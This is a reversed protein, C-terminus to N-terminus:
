NAPSLKVSVGVVGIGRLARSVKARTASDAKFQVTAAGHAIVTAGDVETIGHVLDRVTKNTGSRLGASYLRTIVTNKKRIVKPRLANKAQMFDKAGPGTPFTEDKRPTEYDNRMARITKRTLNKREANERPRWTRM